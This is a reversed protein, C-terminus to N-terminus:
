YRVPWGLRGSCGCVTEGLGPRKVPRLHQRQQPLLCCNGLAMASSGKLLGKQQTSPKVIWRHLLRVGGESFAHHRCLLHSPRSHGYVGGGRRDHLRHQSPGVEKGRQLPRQPVPSDPLALPQNTASVRSDGNRRTPSRLTCFVAKM